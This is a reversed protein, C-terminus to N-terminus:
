YVRGVFQELVEFVNQGAYINTCKDHTYKNGAIFIEKLDLGSIKEFAESYNDDTSCVVHGVYESAQVEDISNTIDFEVCELGISQFYNQCFIKRATLKALNGFLLIQIKKSGKAQEVNFRLKEFEEAMRVAPFLTDDNNLDLHKVRKLLSDEINAFDNIGSLVLKRKRVLEKRSQSIERVSISLKEFVDKLDKNSEFSKFLEFSEHVMKITLDEIVNSGKAPDLVNALGSEEQLVHLSNRSQRLGVESCDEKGYIEFLSDYSTPVLIDAGGVFAASSSVTNRLMNMWPDYLTQERFSNFALIKFNQTELEENELLTEWIYRIARLKSINLFYKSDLSFGFYIKIDAQEFNEKILKAMSLAIAIEQVISGGANHIFRTDVFFIGQTKSYVLDLQKIYQEKDFNASRMFEYVDILSQDGFLTFKPEQILQILHANKDLVQPIKSIFCDIGGAIDKSIDDTKVIERVFNRHEPFTNLQIDVDKSDPYTQCNIGELSSKNLKKELDEVNDLKLTRLAETLWSSSVNKEFFEELRINM